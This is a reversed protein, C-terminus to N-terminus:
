KMRLTERIASMGSRSLRRLWERPGSAGSRQRRKIARPPGFWTRACVSEADAAFGFILFAVLDALQRPMHGDTTGLLFRDRGTLAELLGHSSNRTSRVLEPVYMELPKTILRNDRERGVKVGAQTRRFELAHAHIESHVSAFLAEVHDHFRRRLRLPLSVDWAVQLRRTMESRRLLREFGGGSGERGYGLLAEAKDLFDFAAEIRPLAALQPAALVLTCDALMREFTLFWARQAAAQHNDDEDVFRTPDAAHSYFVNLRAVWWQLFSEIDDAPLNDRFEPDDWPDGRFNEFVDPEYLASLSRPPLERLEADFGFLLVLAHPQRDFAYGIAGPSFALLAPDLAKGYAVGRTLSHEDLTDFGRVNNPDLPFDPTLELVFSGGLITLRTLLVPDVSVLWLSGEPFLQFLQPLQQELWAPLEENTFGAIAAEIAQLMAPGSDIAALRTAEDLLRQRSAPNGEYGPHEALPAWVERTIQTNADCLRHARLFSRTAGAGEAPVVDVVNADIDAVVFDAAEELSQRLVPVLAPDPLNM